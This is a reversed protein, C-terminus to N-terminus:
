VEETKGASRQAEYQKLLEDLLYPIQKLKSAPECFSIRIQTQARMIKDDEAKYFGNMPSVLLTTAVGDVDVSGKEACYAIFDASQFGPQVIRKVDVVLYIASEPQSVIFDPNVEKLKQYMKGNVERYYARASEMWVALEEKTEHAIAGFLHQGISNASLNTTYEAVAQQHFDPNDTIIAGIRLGCANWLKSTTELSIRRGEIGPVQEDTIGWVSVLEREENYFLGRYAEDSLLWLNYKVCLEAIAIMTETDYMQGTPNDYPIMLIGNPREKLIVEEMEDKTPFTFHGEEDLQRSITVTKRGLREAVSNYNTFTPDFMLLPQDDTGPEGCIGLMAIEMALSAGDTVLVELNSVDFGEHRLVNLFAEQAEPNGETSEYKVVGDAFGGEAQGLNRLREVMKPHMPLSVNGIAGNILKVKDTREEYKMSGLRIDSPKKSAFYSSLHPQNSQERQAAM